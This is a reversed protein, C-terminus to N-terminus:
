DLDLEMGVQCMIVYKPGPLFGHYLELDMSPSDVALVGRFLDLPLPYSGLISSLPKEMYWEWFGPADILGRYAEMTYKLEQMLDWERDKGYLYGPANKQANIVQAMAHVLQELHRHAITELSYRFSIVEGQETFRIRGNNSVPPMAVIAKNSQGGGRGVTGGRGHFLRFDINYERCVIGM